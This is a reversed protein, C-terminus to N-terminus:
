FTTPEFRALALTNCGQALHKIGLQKVGGLHLLLSNTYPCDHDTNALLVQADTTFEIFCFHHHIRPLLMITSAETSTHQSWPSPCM